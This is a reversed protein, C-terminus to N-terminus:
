DSVFDWFRKKKKKKKFKMILGPFYKESNRFLLKETLINICAKHITSCDIVKNISNKKEPAKKEVSLASTKGM